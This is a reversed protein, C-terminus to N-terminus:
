IFKHLSIKRIAISSVQVLAQTVVLQKMQPVKAFSIELIRSIVNEQVGSYVVEVAGPAHAGFQGIGIVM